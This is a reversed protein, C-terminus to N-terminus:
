FSSAEIDVSDAFFTLDTVLRSTDGKLTTYMELTTHM